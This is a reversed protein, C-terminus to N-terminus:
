CFSVQQIWTLKVVATTNTAGGSKEVISSYVATGNRDDFRQGTAQTVCCHTIDILYWKCFTYNTNTTLANSLKQHEDGNKEKTLNKLKM